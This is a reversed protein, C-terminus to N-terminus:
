KVPAIVQVEEESIIKDIFVGSLELQKEQAFERLREKVTEPSPMVWKNSKIKALLYRSNDFTRFELDTSPLNQNIGVFVIMTDLKGAPEVEYITHLYSGPHMGKQTEMKEFVKGLEENGPTGRYTIGVLNEPKSQILQIDIPANGGLKQFGWFGVFALIALSAIALVIKKKM